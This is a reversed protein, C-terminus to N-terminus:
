NEAHAKQWRCVELKPISDYLEGAFLFNQASGWTRCIKERCIECFERDKHPTYDLLQKIGHCIAHRSLHEERILRICGEERQLFKNRVVRHSLHGGNPLRWWKQQWHILSSYDLISFVNDISIELLYSHCCMFVKKCHSRSSNRLDPYCIKISKTVRCCETARRFHGLVINTITHRGLRVKVHLHSINHHMSTIPKVVDIEACLDVRGIM